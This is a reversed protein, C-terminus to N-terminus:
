AWGWGGGCCGPLRLPLVTAGGGAFQAAGELFGGQGVATNCGPVGGTGGRKQPCPVTFVCSVNPSHNKTTVRPDIAMVLERQVEPVFECKSHM